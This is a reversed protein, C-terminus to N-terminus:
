YTFSLLESDTGNWGRNSGREEHLGLFDRTLCENNHWTALKKLSFGMYYNSIGNEVDVESVQDLDNTNFQGMSSSSTMHGVLQTRAAGSSISGASVNAAQQLIATASMHATSNSFQTMNPKQFFNVQQQQIPPSLTDWSNITLPHNQNSSPFILSPNQQTQQSFHYRPPIIPSTQVRGAERALADCFPRHTEYKDKRTFVRGCECRTERTGCVKLHAKYDSEVAYMKSCKECRLRKERHKRSFHKKIGTLDGLARAPNHHVCSLEPCVYVKKMCEGSINRKNLKWPLNHGRRHLQLNQDRQFGKNCVECVFRNSTLLSKPSLAIVEVNPGPNGPLNRKKKPQLKLSAHGTPDLSIFGHVKTTGSSGSAEESLCSNSLTTPLM